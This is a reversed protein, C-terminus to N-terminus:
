DILQIGLFHIEATKHYFEVSWNLMYWINVWMCELKWIVMM